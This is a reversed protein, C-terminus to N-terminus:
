SPNCMFRLPNRLEDSAATLPAAPKKADIGNTFLKRGLAFARESAPGTSTSKLL